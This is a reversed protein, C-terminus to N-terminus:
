LAEDEWYALTRLAQAAASEPCEAWPLREALQRAALDGWGGTPRADHLGERGGVPAGAAFAAGSTARCGHRPCLRLPDISTAWPRRCTYPSAGVPGSRMAVTTAHITDGSERSM